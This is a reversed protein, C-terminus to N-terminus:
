NTELVVEQYDVDIGARKVFGKVFEKFLLIKDSEALKIMKPSLRNYALAVVDSIILADAENEVFKRITVEISGLVDVYDGLLSSYLVSIGLEINKKDNEHLKESEKVYVDGLIMGSVYSDQPSFNTSSCGPILLFALLGLTIVGTLIQYKKIM